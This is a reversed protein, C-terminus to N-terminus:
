DEAGPHPPPRLGAKWYEVERLAELRHMLTLTDVGIREAVTDVSRRDVIGEEFLCQVGWDMERSWIVRGRQPAWTSPQSWWASM